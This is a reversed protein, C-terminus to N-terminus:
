RAIDKSLLNLSQSNRENSGEPDALDPTLGLFVDEQFRLRSLVKTWAAFLAVSDMSIHM